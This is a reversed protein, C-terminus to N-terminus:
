DALVLLAYGRWYGGLSLELQLSPNLRLVAIKSKSEEIKLKIYRRSSIDEVKFAIAFIMPNKFRREQHSYINLGHVRFKRGWEQWLSEEDPARGTSGIPTAGSAITLYKYDIM